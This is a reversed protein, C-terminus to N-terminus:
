GSKKKFKLHKKSKEHKEVLGNKIKSGCECIIDEIVVPEEVVENVVKKEYGKEMILIIKDLKQIIENM